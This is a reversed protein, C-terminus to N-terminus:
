QPQMGRKNLGKFKKPRLRDVRQRGTFVRGLKRGLDDETINKKKRNVVPKALSARMVEDVPLMTRRVVWDFAPAILTLGPEGGSVDVSYHRVRIVGDIVTFVLVHQVQFVDVHGKLDGVFFDMLVSRFQIYEGEWQDGEFVLMPVAAHDLVRAGPLDPQARFESVGVEYMETVHGNFLRGFIVDNPRKKCHSFVAFLSCNTKACFKEVEEVSEFPLVDNVRNYQAIEGFRFKALEEWIRNLEQCSKRGKIFV